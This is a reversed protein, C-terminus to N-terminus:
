KMIWGHFPRHILIQPRPKRVILPLGQDQPARAPHPFGPQDPFQRPLPLERQQLHVQLAVRQQGLGKLGGVEPPYKAIQCQQQIM